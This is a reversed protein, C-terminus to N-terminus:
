DDRVKNEHKHDNRNVDDDIRCKKANALEIEIHGDSGYCIIMNSPMAIAILMISFFYISIKNFLFKM